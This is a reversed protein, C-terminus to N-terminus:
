DTSCMRPLSSTVLEIRTTPEMNVLTPTSHSINNGKRTTLTLSSIVRCSFIFPGHLTPKLHLLVTPKAPGVREM